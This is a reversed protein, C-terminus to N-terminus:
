RVVKALMEVATLIDSGTTEKGMTFRLSAQAEQDSLGIARCVHSPDEKGASCASGAAAQIGREDLAMIVRENDIGPITVHINNPLRSKLSGNVAATPILGQLKEIFTKQLKQLRAVEAARRSQVMDLAAALGLIGPVNETGSRMGYEQGGGALQPELPVSARVYLAGVQKPGYMKSGNITMMDVGLRSTHLDLYPTTQCADTHFYLPRDNGSNKRRKRLEELTNSIQKIPQITGIENNAYMVSVLVTKEDVLKELESIEVLGDSKVPVERVDYRRAPQLVSEHEIASVVINADPFQRMVGHIALNNAETGGATFIVEGPRAGFHRALRTRAHQIDQAIDKAALYLASPNHFKESFYPRMAALVKPDLPTAAAYDLYIPKKM